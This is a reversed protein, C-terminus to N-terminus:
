RAGLFVNHSQIGRRGQHGRRSIEFSPEATAFYKYGLDITLEKNVVFGVGAAFQSAFVM